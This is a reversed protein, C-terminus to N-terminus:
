KCNPSDRNRLPLAWCLHTMFICALCAPTGVIRCLQKKAWFTHVAAQLNMKALYDFELAYLLLSFIYHCLDPSPQLRCAFVSQCSSWGLIAEDIRSHLLGLHCSSNVNSCSPQWARCGCCLRNLIRQSKSSELCCSSRMQRNCSLM